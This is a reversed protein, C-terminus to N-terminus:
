GFASVVLLLIGVYWVSLTFYLRCCQPTNAYGSKGHSVLLYYMIQIHRYGENDLRFLAHAMSDHSSGLEEINEWRKEYVVRNQFFTLPCVFNTQNQRCNKESVDSTTLLFSRFIM